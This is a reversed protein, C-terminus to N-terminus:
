LSADQQGLAVSRGACRVVLAVMLWESVRIFRECRTFAVLFLFFFYSMGKGVSLGEGGVVEVGEGQVWVM